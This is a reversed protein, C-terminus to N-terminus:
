DGDLSPIEPHNGPERHVPDTVTCVHSIDDGHPLQGCRHLGSSTEWEYGCTPTTLDFDVQNLLTTEERYIDPLRGNPFCFPCDPKCRVIHHMGSDRYSEEMWPQTFGVTDQMPGLPNEDAPNVTM